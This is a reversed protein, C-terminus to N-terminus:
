RRENAQKAIGALRKLRPNVEKKKNTLENIFKEKDFFDRFNKYVSVQEKGKKKTAQVKQNAWAQLHIKEQEDIDKLRWAYMQAEYEFLTM